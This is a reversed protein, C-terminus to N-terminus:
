FRVKGGGHNRAFALAREYAPRTDPNLLPRQAAVQYVHGPSGNAENLLPGDSTLFVDWGILGNFPFSEHGLRCLDVAQEWEPLKTGLFALDPDHGHTLDPLMPDRLDRLKVITGTALDILGWIRQDPADGDHMASRAPLRIVGYWPEVGRDTWLTVIRVSAMAPGTHRALDPTSRYFPQFLYGTGWDAAIEAALAALPATQGNLFRVVGPQALDQFVAAGRAFSDARPKGFLPYIAPDALFDTLDAARRLISLAPLGAVGEGETLFLARTRTLPLGRAALVAENALKDSSLAGAGQRGPMHLSTNFDRTRWNSLFGDLFTRMRDSRWLAYTYYEEPRVQARGFALALLSVAQRVAGPGGADQLAQMKAILPFTGAEATGSLYGM